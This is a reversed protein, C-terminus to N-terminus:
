KFIKMIYLNPDFYITYNDITTSLGYKNRYYKIAENLFDETVNLYDAMECLDKCRGTLGIRKNFAWIRAQLEQKTNRIDTLDLINGTTTHYHGLEEALVCSKETYTKINKNIAINGDIYLGKIGEPFNIEDVEINIDCAEKLLKDYTM